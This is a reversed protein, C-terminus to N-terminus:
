SNVKVLVVQEQQNAVMPRESVVLAEVEKRDTRYGQVKWMSRQAEDYTKDIMEVM